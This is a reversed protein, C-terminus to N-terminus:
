LNQAEMLFRAALHKAESFPVREGHKWWSLRIMNAPKMYGQRNVVTYDSCTVAVFYEPRDPIMMPDKLIVQGEVLEAKKALRDDIRTDYHKAAIYPCVRLAFEACEHHMPPDIYAGHKHLASMPGGVFTMGANQPRPNPRGRSDHFTEFPKGCIGCLKNVVCRYVKTQDNITFHPTNTADRLVIFPIPLGRKDRPLLSMREPIPTCELVRKFHTSM